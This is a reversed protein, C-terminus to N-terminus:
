LEGSEIMDVIWWILGHRCVSIFIGTERYISWMKKLSDSMAAKWRDTCTSHLRMAMPPVLKLIIQHGSTRRPTKQLRIIPLDTWAYIFLIDSSYQVQQRANHSSIMSLSTLLIRMSSTTAKSNTSIGQWVMMFAPRSLLQNGDM